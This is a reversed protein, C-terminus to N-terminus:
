GFAESLAEMSVPSLYGSLHGEAREPSDLGEIRLDELTLTGDLVPVKLARTLGFRGQRTHASLQSAGLDLAFLKGARWQLQSQTERNRDWALTGDLGQFAFRDKGDELHVDRFEAAVSELGRLGWAGQIQLEGATELEDLGAEILWPQVWSSFAQPFKLKLAELGLSWQDAVRRARGTLRMFEGQRALVDSLQLRDPQWVFATKLELADADTDVLVPDVYVQGAQLESELTGQWAGNAGLASVQLRGKLGEGARLSDRDSFALREPELEGQIRIGDHDSRAQLSVDMSGSDVTFGGDPLGLSRALILLDAAELNKGKLTLTWQNPSGHLDVDAWGKALSLRNGWLRLESTESDWDLSLAKGSLLPLAPTSQVSLAPCHFRGGEWTAQPCSLRVDRSKGLMGPLAAVRLERIDLEVGLPGAPASLDLHLVIPGAAGWDAEVLGLSLSLSIRELAYLPLSVIFSLFLLTPRM